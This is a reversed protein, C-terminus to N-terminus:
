ETSTHHPDELSTLIPCEETSRKRKCSSILATLANKIGELAGIKDEIIKLKEEARIRVNECAAPVDVRLELLEKIEKLTFGLEKARRIFRLRKLEEEGYLRYGSNTKLPPSILGCREYYRITQINVGGLRALKGITYRDKMIGQM